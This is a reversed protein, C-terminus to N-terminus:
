DKLGQITALCYRTHRYNRFEMLWIGQWTGLALRGDKIPINLSVGIISAKAHGSMDDPGEDVHDFIRGNDDPVVNNLATTMDSRVDPDCNENLSIGASTHQLFLNVMGVNYDRLQPLSRVVEETVLYCGRARPSFSFKVQEWSSM